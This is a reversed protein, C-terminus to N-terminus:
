QGVKKVLKRPGNEQGIKEALKRPLNGQGIKKALKSSWNEQGIKAPSNEQNKKALKRPWNEQGLLSLTGLRRSTDSHHVSLNVHMTSRTPYDIDSIRYIHFQFMLIRLCHMLLAKNVAIACAGAIAGRYIRM